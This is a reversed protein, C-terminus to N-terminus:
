MKNRKNMKWTTVFMKWSKKPKNLIMLYIDYIVTIQNNL